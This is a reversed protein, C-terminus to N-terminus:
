RKCRASLRRKQETRYQLPTLGTKEKFAIFFGKYSQYGVKEAIEGIELETDTLLEQAILLRIQSLHRRFGEGYAKRIMRDTQKESLYLREALNKLSINEMYHDNFYEEIQYIRADKEIVSDTLEESYEMQQESVDAIETFLLMLWAKVRDEAFASEEQVQAISRQLCEEILCNHPLVILPEKVNLRGRIKGEYDFGEKGRSKEVFFTFSFVASDAEESVFRHFVEPAILVADKEELYVTKGAVELAARGRMLMHFEFAAHNHIKAGPRSEGELFGHMVAKIIMNGLEIRLVSKKEM